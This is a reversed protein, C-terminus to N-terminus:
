VSELYELYETVNAAPTNSGSAESMVEMFKPPFENMMVGGNEGDAIGELEQDTFRYEADIEFHRLLFPSAVIRDLAIEEGPLLHDDFSGVFGIFKLQM